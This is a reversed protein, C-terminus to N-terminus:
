RTAGAAFLKLVAAGSALRIALRLLIYIQGIAVARWGGVQSGGLIELAGYGMTVTAFVAAILLYLVVVAGPRSRLFAIASRLAGTATTAAGSVSAARAYDAALGISALPALFVLYLVMRVLFRTVETASAPTLVDIVPGFLLPHVTLYVLLIAGAALLAILIFRIVFRSCAALFARAGIADDAAFRTLLGGWLFAWAVITAMLPVLVALPPRRGDLVASIADLPAAFGIVAPTFTADLGRAQARFEEWWAPDIETEDLNVPPQTSLSEQLRSGLLAAQPAAVLLMVAAVMVVVLPARLVAAWGKMFADFPSVPPVTM